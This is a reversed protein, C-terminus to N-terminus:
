RPITLKQGVKIDNPNALNNARAIAEASVGYQKGITSLTDGKQVVHEGGAGNTTPPRTMGTRAAGLTALEKALTDLIVQKDKERAADAARLRADLADLDARTITAGTRRLELVQGQIDELQKQLRDQNFQLAEVTAQLRNLKEELVAPSDQAFIPAGVFSFVAVAFIPRLLAASKM